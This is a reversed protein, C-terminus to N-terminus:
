TVSRGVLLAVRAFSGVDLVREALIALGISTANFVAHALIPVLLSGSKQLGIAFVMGLLFLGVLALPQSTVVEVHIFAFILSSLLAAPWVGMRPRLSRFLAGRFVIEETVPALVVAIFVALVAPAGGRLADQMIQQEVAQDP